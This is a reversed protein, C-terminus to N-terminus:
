NRDTLEKFKYFAWGEKYGIRRALERLDNLTVPFGGEFEEKIRHWIWAPNYGKAEQICQLNDILIVFEPSPKHIEVESFNAPLIKVAKLKEQKKGKGVKVKFEFKTQCNPCQTWLQQLDKGVPRFVHDCAPCTLAKKTGSPLSIPDLSWEIYDDPNPLIEHTTTHDIIIAHTKNPAPRLARGIAQFWITLSKTPRAFVVAGIEPVDVGEVIISHQCLILTEGSRFRNLISEREKSPTDADIHEAPHGAQKFKLCLKKSYKVSVPYVVTRLGKAHKEWTEIIDGYLLVEEVLKEVESQVYDGMKTHIGAVQPDVLEKAAFFKFDSLHGEEILQRVPVGTILSEFGKVGQYLCKLGRGDIRLPTASVGLIYSKEYHQFLKAYSRAHSHHCEDFVVLSALPYELPNLYNLAQVSGLQILANPNRKFQTRDAIIGVEVNPFWRSCHDRLQKILEIKHAVILVPEGRRIFELVAQAIILSKGAGTPQQILVNNFLQWERILQNFSDAQYDRLPLTQPLEVQFLGLQNQLPKVTTNM